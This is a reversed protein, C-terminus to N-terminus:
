YGLRSNQGLRKGLSELHKGVILQSTEWKKLALTLDDENALVDALQMANISAKSASAATHPRPVFASDGLLLVRDFVMQSVSLDTIPQVFPEITLDVLEKFQSPLKAKEVSKLNDVYENRVKGPPMFFERQRGTKDTFLSKLEEQKVNVYWVWNLRRSKIDHAGPIMYSLIQTRMGQFFTFKNEFFKLLGSPLESEEILGRWAVYGAYVPNEAPLLQHRITSGIGDVAIFLDAKLQEGDSFKVMVQKEDQQFGVVDQGTHYFEDPFVERLKRYLMDWSTMPQPMEMKTASGDYKVFQREKLPISIESPTCVKYTRLFEEVDTQLVIGAGRSELNGKSREHISVEHGHARLAVGAFLGGLSGGAIVIRLPKIGM